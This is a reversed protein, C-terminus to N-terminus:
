GIMINEEAYIIEAKRGKPAALSYAITLLGVKGILMTIIIAIKSAGTLYPTMGMSLGVTAFASITEFLADRFIRADTGPLASQFIIVAASVATVILIGLTFVAVSKIIDANPITRHFAAVRSKGKLRSVALQIVVLFSTTKIGGGTSGPSAGIFMLIMLIIISAHSLAAMDVTNFGATRATISQFFSDMLTLNGSAYLGLAGFLILCFTVILVSKAHLSFRRHGTRSFLETLEIMVFYGLGGFVILAMITINVIANSSYDILNNTFLSFGANNFASIGHFTSYWLSDVIGNSKMFGVTLLLIGVVEIVLTFAFIRKLLYFIDHFKGVAVTAEFYLREGASIRRGASIFVLTAITMIGLGGLQILILITLQGWFTWVTATDVTILGTVCVASTCTFFSDLFSTEVRHFPPLLLIFAGATIVFLYALLMLLGPRIGILKNFAKKM